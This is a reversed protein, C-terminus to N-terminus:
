LPFDKLQDNVLWLKLMRSKYLFSSTGHNGIVVKPIVLWFRKKKKIFCIDVFLHKTSLINTDIYRFELM